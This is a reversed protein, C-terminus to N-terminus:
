NINIRFLEFKLMTMVPINNIVVNIVYRKM